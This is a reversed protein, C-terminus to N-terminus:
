PADQTSKQTPSPNEKNTDQSQLPTMSADDSPAGHELVQNEPPPNAQTETDVGGQNEEDSPADEPEEMQAVTEQGFKEFTYNLDNVIFGVLYFNFGKAFHKDQVEKKEEPWGNKRQDELYSLRARIDTLKTEQANFKENLSKLM